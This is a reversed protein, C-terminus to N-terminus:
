LGVEIETPHHCVPYTENMETSSGKFSYASKRKFLEGERCRPCKNSLASVLYTKQLDM